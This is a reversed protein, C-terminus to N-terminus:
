NPAAQGVGLGRKSPLLRKNVWQPRKCFNWFGQDVDKM